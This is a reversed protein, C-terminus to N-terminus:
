RATKAITAVESIAAVALARCAFRYDEDEDDEVKIEGGKQTAAFALCNRAL